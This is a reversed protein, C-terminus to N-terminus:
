CVHTLIDQGNVLDPVNSLTTGEVVDLVAYALVNNGLQGKRALDTVIASGLSHGVLVLNPLEKWGLKRQTLRITELLDNSLTELGFDLVGGDTSEETKAKSRVVTEGHGRADPSLIGAAPLIKRIEASLAAFSLGSSGAGHHAIFLPGPGVPPTM